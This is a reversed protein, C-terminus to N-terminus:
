SAANAHTASTSFDIMLSVNAVLPVVKQYTVSITTGTQDQVIDLDDPTVSTVNQITAKRAFLARIDSPPAGAEETVLAKLVSKLGFYESYVPLLKLALLLGVGLVIASLLMTFLSLGRQKRM